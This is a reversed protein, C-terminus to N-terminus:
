NSLPTQVMGQSIADYYVVNKGDNWRINQNNNGVCATVSSDFQQMDTTHAWFSYLDYSVKEECHGGTPPAAWAKNNNWGNAPIPATIINGSSDLGSAISYWNFRSDGYSVSPNFDFSNNGQSDWFIIGQDSLNESAAFCLREDMNLPAPGEFSTWKGGQYLLCNGHDAANNDVLPNEVNFHPKKNTDVYRTLYNQYKLFCTEQSANAEKDGTDEFLQSSEVWVQCTPITATHYNISNPAKIKAGPKWNPDIGSDYGPDDAPTKGGLIKEGEKYIFYVGLVAAASLALDSGSLSM